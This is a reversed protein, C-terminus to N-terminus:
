GGSIACDPIAVANGQGGSPTRKLRMKAALNAFFSRDSPSKALTAAPATRDEEMGARPAHSGDKSMSETSPEM